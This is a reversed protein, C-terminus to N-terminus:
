CLMCYFELCLIICIECVNGYEDTWISKAIVVTCCVSSLRVGCFYSERSASLIVTNMVLVHLYMVGNGFYELM